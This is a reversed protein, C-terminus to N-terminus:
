SRTRPRINRLSWSLQAGASGHPRRSYAASGPIGCDAQERLATLRFHTSRRHHITPHGADHSRHQGRNNRLANHYNRVSTESCKDEGKEGGRVGTEGTQPRDVGRNEREQEEQVRMAGGKRSRYTTGLHRYSIVVIRQTIVWFLASRM